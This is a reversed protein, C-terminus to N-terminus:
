GNKADMKRDLYEIVEVAVAAVRIFAERQKEPDTEAFAECIVALVIDFWGHREQKIRGRCQELTDKLESVHPYADGLQRTGILRHSRDERKEDQRKREQDIARFIMCRQGSIGLYEIRTEARRNWKRVALKCTAKEAALTGATKIIAGCCGCEIVCHAEYVNSKHVNIKPEEGCFPCPRLKDKTIRRMRGNREIKNHEGFLTNENLM